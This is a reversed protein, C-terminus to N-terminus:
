VTVFACNVIKLHFSFVYSNLVFIQTSSYDFEDSFLDSCQIPKKKKKQNDKFKIQFSHITIIYLDIWKFINVTTIRRLSHTLDQTQKKHTVGHIKNFKKNIKKKTM